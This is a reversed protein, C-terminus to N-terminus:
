VNAINSTKTVDQSLLQMPSACSPPICLTAMHMMLDEGIKIGTQWSNMTPEIM